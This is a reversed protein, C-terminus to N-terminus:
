LTKLGRVITLLHHACQGEGDMYARKYGYQGTKAPDLYSNKQVIEELVDELFKLVESNAEAAIVDWTEKTNNSNQKRCYTELLLVPWAARNQEM